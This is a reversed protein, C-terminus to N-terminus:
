SETLYWALGQLPRRFDLTSIRSKAKNRGYLIRFEVTERGRCRLSDRAKLNGALGEKNTLVLDLLV